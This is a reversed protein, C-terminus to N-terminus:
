IGEVVEYIRKDLLISVNAIILVYEGVGKSSWYREQTLGFGVRTDRIVIRIVARLGTTM